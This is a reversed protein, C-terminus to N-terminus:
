EVSAAARPMGDIFYVDSVFEGRKVAANKAELIQEDRAGLDSIVVVVYSGATTKEATKYRDLQKEYGHLLRKNDSLKIEVVAKADYGTSLKFDVEGSGTDVEPSIDVNFAECYSDAVAFFLRQVSKERRPKGKEAWLERWLGREEVLHQFQGIIKEVVVRVDALTQAKKTLPAPLPYDRAIVPRLERWVFEGEPDSSLDYATPKVGQVAAIYANVAQANALLAKRLEHKSERTKAKWIDGVYLNFTDRISQNEAAVRGVDEWDLAVPLARVVDTPVLFIPTRQKQTPNTPLTFSTGLVTHKELSLGLAEANRVTFAALDELVVNTVMDSILDPGVDDELLPLLLFLDPDTVGLDVIAKATAVLRNAMEPGVGSGRISGAGYGLCTGPIEPFTLRRKAERYAVDSDDLKQVAQVIKVLSAFYNHFRDAADNMEKHKSLPLLLPDVFLLADVNLSVNIIDAGVIKELPLHFAEALSIPTRIKAM